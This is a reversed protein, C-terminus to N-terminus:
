EGPRAVPGVGDRPCPDGGPGTTMELLVVELPGSVTFRVWGDADNFLAPVPERRELEGPAVVLPPMNPLKPFSVAVPEDGPNSWCPLVDPGNPFAATEGALLEAAPARRKHVELVIVDENM